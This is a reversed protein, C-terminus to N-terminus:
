SSTYSRKTTVYYSGGDYKWSVMGQAHEKKVVDLNRSLDNENRFSVSQDPRRFPKLSIIQCGDKLDLFMQLLSQNTEEPFVENNVLIVDARRMANQINTNETFDGEELEIAGINIGWLRCRAECERKQRRALPTLKKVIECGWSECGIQLAAQAVVNGVGSGLDVFVQGSTIGSDVLLQHVFEPELEGYTFKKESTDKGLEKIDPSIARDYIQKMIQKVLDKSLMHRNTLFGEITGDSRLKGVERNYDDLAQRFLGVDQIAKAREMRRIVGNEPNQFPEAQEFTLFFNTFTKVVAIIEEVPDFENKAWVLMYKERRSSGPYQLEVNVEDKTAGLTPKYKQKLIDLNAIKWAHILKDDDVSTFKSTAKLVRENDIKADSARKRRKHRNTFDLASTASDNDEESDSELREELDRKKAIRRRPSPEISSEPTRTSNRVSAQSRPTGRIDSLARPLTPRLNSPKATSTTNKVQVTKVVQEKAKAPRNKLMFSM